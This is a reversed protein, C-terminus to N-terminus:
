EPAEAELHLEDLSTGDTNGRGCLEMQHQQGVELQVSCLERLVLVRRRFLQHLQEVLLLHLTVSSKYLLAVWPLPIHVAYFSSPKNNSSFVPM